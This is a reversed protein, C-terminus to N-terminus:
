LMYKEAGDLFEDLLASNEANAAMDEKAIDLLVHDAGGEKATALYVDMSNNMHQIKVMEISALYARVDDPGNDIIEQMQKTFEPHAEDLNELRDHLIKADAIVDRENSAVTNQVEVSKEETPAVSSENIAKVLPKLMETLSPTEAEEKMQGEFLKDNFAQKLQRWADPSITMLEDLMDGNQIIENLQKRFESPNLRDDAGLVADVRDLMDSKRHNRRFARSEELAKKQEEETLEKATQKEAQPEEVNPEEAQPANENVIAPEKKPASSFLGTFFGKIGNWLSTLFGVKEPAAVAAVPATEPVVKEEPLKIDQMMPDLIGDDPEVVSDDVSNGMSSEDLREAEDDNPLTASTDPRQEFLDEEAGMYEVDYGGFFAQVKEWTTPEHDLFRKAKPM